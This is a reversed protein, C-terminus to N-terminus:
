NDENISKILFYAFYLRNVFSYEGSNEKGISELINLKKAKMLFNDFVKIEDSNLLKKVDSKKFSMLKNKAIKIFINVYHEKQIKNLKHKIQKKGIENAADIISEIAIKETIEFTDQVNWFFLIM